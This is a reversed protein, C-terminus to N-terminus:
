MIRKIFFTSLEVKSLNVEVPTGKVPPRKDAISSIQVNVGLSINGSIKIYSMKGIGLDLKYLSKPM